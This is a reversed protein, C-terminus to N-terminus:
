AAEKLYRAKLTHVMATYLAYCAENDGRNLADFCPQLWTNWIAPYEADPNDSYNIATVIAPAIRYYEAILAQGNPQAALWGDRFHRFATLEACDDAKGLYNCVATTIFCLRRKQFGKAIDEYTALQFPNGPYKAIWAARLAEALALGREPACRRIAPITVLCLTFKCNDMLVDAGKLAAKNESCWVSVQDIVSSCLPVLAEQHLSDALQLIPLHQAVYADFYAPFAGPQLNRITQPYGTIMGPLAGELAAAAERGEEADPEKATLQALTMRVGCYMCSFETLGEPLVIPNGCHPCTYTKAEM